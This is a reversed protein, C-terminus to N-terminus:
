QFMRAHLTEGCHACSDGADREAGETHWGVSPVSTGRVGTLDPPGIETGDATCTSPLHKKPAHRVLGADNPPVERGTPELVNAM